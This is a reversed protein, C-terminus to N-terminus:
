PQSNGSGDLAARLEALEAPDLQGVFHLLTSGRDGSSSLVQGLLAATHEERSTAPVYLFARGSKERRVLGKGHLNDLVTMVTTYALPRERQLDELVERVATPRDWDWLRQMVAAELQGLDKVM